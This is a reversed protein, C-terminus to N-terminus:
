SSSTSPSRKMSQSVANRAPSSTVSTWQVSQSGGPQGAAARFSALDGWEDSESLPLQDYAAYARDAEARRHRGLTGRGLPWAPGIVLGVVLLTPIM